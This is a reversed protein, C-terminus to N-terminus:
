SKKRKRTPPPAPAPAGAETLFAALRGGAILKWERIVAQRQPGAPTRWVLLQMGGAVAMTATTYADIAEPAVHPLAQRLIQGLDAAIQADSRAATEAYAATHRLELILDIAGPEAEYRALAADIMDAVLQMPDSGVDFGQAVGLAVDDVSFMAREVLAAAVADMNAFYQYISSVPLEAAEAVMAGSVNARGHRIILAAATDLIKEVRAKSRQQRPRARVGASEEEVTPAIKLSPPPPM